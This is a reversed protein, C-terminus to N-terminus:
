CDRDCRMEMLLVKRRPKTHTDELSDLLSDQQAMRWHLPPRPQAAIAVQELGVCAQSRGLMYPGEEGDRWLCYLQSQGHLSLSVGAASHAITSSLRQTM